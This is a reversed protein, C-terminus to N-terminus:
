KLFKFSSIVRDYDSESLLNAAESPILNSTVKKYNENFSFTTITWFKNNHKIVVRKEYKDEAAFTFSFFIAENGDIGGRKDIQYPDQVDKFYADFSLYGDPGSVSIEGAGLGITEKDGFDISYYSLATNNNEKVIFNKPYNIFFGADKNVYTSWGLAVSTSTSVRRIPSSTAIQNIIISTPQNNEVPMPKGGWFIIGVILILAVIGILIIINKKM